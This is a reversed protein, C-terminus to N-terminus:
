AGKWSSIRVGLRGEIEVLQGEGLIKGNIALSVQGDNQRDLELITGAALGNAEALTLEKEAVIVHVHLPLQRLDPFSENNPAEGSQLDGSILPKREFYNDIQIRQINSFAALPGLSTGEDVNEIRWGCDRQGAILLELQPQFLLVDGRELQAVETTTLPQFGLSIPFKWAASSPQWSLDRNPVTQQM